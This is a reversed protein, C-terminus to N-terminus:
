YDHYKSDGTVTSLEDDCKAAFENIEANPVLNIDDSVSGNKDLYFLLWQSGDLQSFPSLIFYMKSTGMNKKNIDLLEM